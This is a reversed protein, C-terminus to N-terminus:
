QLKLSIEKSYLHKSLSFSDIRIKVAFVFVNRKFLYLLLLSSILISDFALKREQWIIRSCFCHPMFSVQLNEGRAVAIAKSRTKCFVTLKPPQSNKYILFDEISSKKQSQHYKHWHLVQSRWSCYCSLPGWTATFIILGLPLLYSSGLHCYIHHAGLPLLMFYFMSCYDKLRYQHMVLSSISRLNLCEPNM